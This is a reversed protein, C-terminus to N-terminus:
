IHCARPSTIEFHVPYEDELDYHVYLKLGRTRSDEEPWSFYHLNKLQIPSADLLEIIGSAERRVGSTVQKILVQCLDAFVESLRHCSADSLTSRKPLRLNLHYLADPQADPQASLAQVIERLSGLGAFQAFLLTKLHRQCTWAKAGTGVGRNGGHRKVINNLDRRNIPELLRAFASIRYPM